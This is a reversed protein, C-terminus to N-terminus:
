QNYNRNSMPNSSSYYNDKKKDHVSTFGQNTASLKSYGKITTYGIAPPKNILFPNYYTKTYTVSTPSKTNQLTWGGSTHKEPKDIRHLLESQRRFPVFPDHPLEWALAVTSGVTFIQGM